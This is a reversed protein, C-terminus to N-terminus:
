YAEYVFSPKKPFLTDLLLRASPRVQFDPHWAMLEDSARYGLTLQCLLGPPSEVDWTRSDDTLVVDGIKGREIAIELTELGILHISLVGSWDLLLSSSLRRELVPSIQRLFGKWDMVRVQWAFPTVVQAGLYRAAQVAKHTLPLQLIVSDLGLEVARQRAFGLVVLLANYRDVSLERIVVSAGKSHRPLRFYGTVSGERELIYTEYAHESEPPQTEQYRWLAEDRVASLLLSRMETNYLGCLIPIDSLECPRLRYLESESMAPIQNIWLHVGGKLPVAYEYGLRQYIGPVGQVCSLTCGHKKLMEDFAGMQARILGKKRFSPDTGVLEVQGVNLTVGDYRWQQLLFCLSSVVEKTITDEVFLFHEASTGPRKGALLLRAWIGVSPRTFIAENFKAVRESSASDATCLALRSDLNRILV